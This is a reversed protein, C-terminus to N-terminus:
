RRGVFTQRITQIPKNESDKLITQLVIQAMPGFTKGEKEVVDVIELHYSIVEGPHL